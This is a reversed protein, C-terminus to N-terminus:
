QRDRAECIGQEARELENVIFLEQNREAALCKRETPEFLVALESRRESLRSIPLWRIGAPYTRGRHDIPDCVYFYKTASTDLRADDPKDIRGM